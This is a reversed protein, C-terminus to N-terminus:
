SNPALGGEQPMDTIEGELFDFADLATKVQWNTVGEAFAFRYRTDSDELAALYAAPLAEDTGATFNALEELASTAPNLGRVRAKISTIGVAVVVESGCTSAGVRTVVDVIEAMSAQAPVLFSGAKLDATKEEYRAGTRFIFGNEIAGAGVLDESVRTMDSGREVKLCIADALPGPDQYQGRGWMMVAATGAALLILLTMMNAAFHRAM